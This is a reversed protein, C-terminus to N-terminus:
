IEIMDYAAHCLIELMECMVFLCFLSQLSRKSKRRLNGDDCMKCYVSNVLLLIESELV